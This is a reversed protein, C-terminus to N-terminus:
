RSRPPGHILRWAIVAGLIAGAVLLMVTYRIGTDWHADLWRGVFAGGVTTTVIPWGVSGLVSLSRWFSGSGAERRHYRQLDRQLAARLNPRRGDDGSSWSNQPM